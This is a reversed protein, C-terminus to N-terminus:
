LDEGLYATKVKEDNSVEYPTGESIVKGGQLVTVADCVETVLGVNHEILVITCEKKLDNLLAIMQPIDDIGMGSTPEDLLLVRPKSMLAVGVELVRQQGHSLASVPTDREASLSTRALVKDVAEATSGTEQASRWFIFGNGPTLAQHALRLNEFVSLDGFLSTVQFSRSLGALPRKHQALKTIDNGELLVQGSTTQVTGALCNFFTTKGAGNPGIVGHVTGKAVRLNIDTNAVFDGYRKTLSRTELIATM